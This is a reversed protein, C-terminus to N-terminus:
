SPYAVVAPEIGRLKAGFEARNSSEDHAPRNALVFPELAMGFRDPIPQPRELSADRVQESM